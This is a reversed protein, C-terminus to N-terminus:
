AVQDVQRKSLIMGLVIPKGRLRHFAREEHQREFADRLPDDIIRERVERLDLGLRGFIAALERPAHAYNEVEFTTGEHAFTRKMGASFAEPHFDTLIVDGGPRLVRAWEALAGDVDRVHGLTLTSVVVDVSADGIGELTPGAVPHLEADPFRARLRALMEPSRDAGALARPRGALLRPWHRGTGCGVDLVRRGELAVRALLDSFLAEELALVLNDPQADYTAAWLRYADEVALRQPAPRTAQTLRRLVEGIRPIM